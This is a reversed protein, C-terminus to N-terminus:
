KKILYTDLDADYVVKMGFKLGLSKVVSEIEEVAKQGLNRFKLFQEPKYQVLDGM